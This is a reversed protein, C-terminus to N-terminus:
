GQTTEPDARTGWAQEFLQVMDFLVPQLERWEDPLNCWWGIRANCFFEGISLEFSVGDCGFRGQAVALPVQISRFRAVLEEIRALEVPVWDAEITPQFPRPRKMREVPSRITQNDLDMRWCSRYLRMQTGTSRSVVRMVDWSVPSEFLPLVLYQCVQVLRHRDIYRGLRLGEYVAERVALIEDVQESDM